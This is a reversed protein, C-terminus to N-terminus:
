WRQKDGVSVVQCVFDFKEVAEEIVRVGVDCEDRLGPKVLTVASDHFAAEVLVIM